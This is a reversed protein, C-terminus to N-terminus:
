PIFKIAFKGHPPGKGKAPVASFIVESSGSAGAYSGNGGIATYM